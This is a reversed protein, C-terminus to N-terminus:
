RVIVQVPDSTACVPASNRLTYADSEPAACAIVRLDNHGKMGLKVRMSYTGDSRTHVKAPLSVWGKKQRQQLTVETGAPFSEAQGRVRFEEQATVSRTATHVTLTPAQGSDGAPCGAPGDMTGASAAGAPVVSLLLGASVLAVRASTQHM